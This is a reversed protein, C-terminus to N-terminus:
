LAELRDAFSLEVKPPSAPPTDVVAALPKELPPPAAAGTRQEITARVAEPSPAPAKPMAPAAVPHEPLPAEANPAPTPELPPHDAEPTVVPHGLAPAAEPAPVSFSRSIPKPEFDNPIIAQAADTAPTLIDTPAPKIEESPLVPSPAHEVPAGPVAQGVSYFHLKKPDLIIEGNSNVSVSSGKLMHNLDFEKHSLVFRHLLKDPTNGGPAKSSYHETLWSLMKQYQDSNTKQLNLLSSELGRSTLQIETIQSSDISPAEPTPAETPAAVPAAHEVPAPHEIPAVHSAGGLSNNHPLAASAGAKGPSVHQLAKGFVKNQLYGSSLIVGAGAAVGAVQKRKTKEEAKAADTRNDGASARRDLYVAGDAESSVGEAMMAEYRSVLQLYLDDKELDGATKGDLIARAEIQAMYEELQDNNLTPSTLKREIESRHSSNRALNILEYSATSTGAFSLGKRAGWVGLGAFSAPGVAFGTLGLGVALGTRVNATRLAFRAFKNEVKKGSKKEYANLLNYEALSKYWGAFKAVKGKTYEQMQADVLKSKEEIFKGVHSGIYERRATEYEQRAAELAAEVKDKSESIHLLAKISSFGDMRKKAEVYKKRAAELNEPLKLSALYEPPLPPPTAAPPPAAESVEPVAKEEAKPEATDLIWESTTGYEVHDIKALQEILPKLYGDVAAQNEPTALDGLKKLIRRVEKTEAKYGTADKIRKSEAATKLLNTATLVGERLQEATNDAEMTESRPADLKEKSVVTEAFPEGVGMQEVPDVVAPEDEELTAVPAESSRVAKRAAERM